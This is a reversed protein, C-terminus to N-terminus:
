SVFLLVCGWGRELPSNSSYVILLQKSKAVFARIILIGIRFNWIGVDINTVGFVEGVM